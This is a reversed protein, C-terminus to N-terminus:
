NRLIDLIGNVCESLLNQPINSLEAEIPVIHCNDYMFNPDEIEQTQKTSNVDNNISQLVNNTTNLIFDEFADLQNKKKFINSTPPMVPPRNYVNEKEHSGSTSAENRECLQKM